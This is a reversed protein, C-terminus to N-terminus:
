LHFFARLQALIELFNQRRFREQYRRNFEVSLAEKEEGRLAGYPRGQLYEQLAEEAERGRGSWWTQLVRRDDYFAYVPVRKARSRFLFNAMLDEHESAPFVKLDWGELAETLRAWTPLTHVVDPCWDEALVVVTLPPLLRLLRLDDRRFEPARFAEDLVEGNLEVRSRYLEYTLGSELTAQPFQFLM